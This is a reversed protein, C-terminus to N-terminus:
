YPCNKSTLQYVNQLKNEACRALFIFKFRVRKLELKNFCYITRRSVTM